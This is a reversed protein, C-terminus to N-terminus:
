GGVLNKANNISILCSILKQIVIILDLYLEHYLRVSHLFAKITGYRFIPNISSLIDWPTLKMCAVIAKIWDFYPCIQIMTLERTELSTLSGVTIGSYVNATSM